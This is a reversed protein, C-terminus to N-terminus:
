LDKKLRAISDLMMMAKSNQPDFELLKNFNEIALDYQGDAMLAEAYSDYVNFSM